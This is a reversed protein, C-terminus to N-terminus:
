MHTTLMHTTSLILLCLCSGCVIGMFLVWLCGHEGGGGEGEGDGMGGAASGAIIKLKRHLKRTNAAAKLAAPRLEKNLVESEHQAQELADIM